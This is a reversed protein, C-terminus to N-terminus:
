DNKHSKLFEILELNTGNKFTYDMLDSKELIPRIFEASLGILVKIMDTQALKKIEKLKLADAKKREAAEKPYGANLPEEFLKELTFRLNLEGAWGFNLGLPM